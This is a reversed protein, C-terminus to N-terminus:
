QRPPATMTITVSDLYFDETSSSSEAYLLLSDMDETFTYSGSLKQWRNNTVDRQSVTKWTTGGDKKQEMTFKLTSPTRPASVLRVYGTINYVAGKQFLGIVDLSQGHWNASRGTAKLSYSGAQATENVSEIQMGPGRPIWGQSDGNEFDYQAVVEPKFSEKAAMSGPMGLSLLSVALLVTMMVSLRKM